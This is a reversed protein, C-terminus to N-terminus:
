AARVHFPAPPMGDRQRAHMTAYAAELQRTYRATDFLPTTLRNAALKRKTGALVDPNTALRVAMAEYEHLDGTILEPLGIAGLLSAAVRGAFTQGRCTLIPTGAWLADSATTHANCPLTDLILDALRHRALHQASPVFPAFILRAPDLGHAAAAARLNTVAARNDDLLWLVSGEVASLIRVWCDFMAPVIKYSNGFNCFVFGRKPLGLEARTPTEAAISRARDTAQYSDPLWAIKETYFHQDHEPIVTSDAILYDMYAAGLTGPFGLFGVQVPAPRRRFVGSRHEGFYGNLNVLIDIEQAGIVAAAGADSLDRIPVIRPIALTLRTRTASGDDWGNDFAVIEFRDADHHEFVGALLQMTAQDRFEGSVYGIRIKPHDYALAAPTLAVPGPHLYRDFLAAARMLSRPSDSVAQWCFPHVAIVGAQVQREVQDVLMALDAWDCALMQQELVKGTALPIDPAVAAATRYAGAALDYLKLKNFVRGLNVWAEGCAPAIRTAKLCAALAEPSRGLALLAIGRRSHARAHDPALAIAAAYSTAAEEHRRAAAHANGTRFHADSPAPDPAVARRAGDEDPGAKASEKRGPM